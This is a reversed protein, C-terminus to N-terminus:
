LLSSAETGCRGDGAAQGVVAALGELDMVMVGGAARRADDDARRRLLLVCPTAVVADDGPTRAAAWAQAEASARQLARALGRGRSYNAVPSTVVALAQGPGVLYGRWSQHDGRAGEVRWGEPLKKLLRQLERLAGELQWGTVIRTAMIGMVAIGMTGFMRFLAVGFENALRFLSGVAFAVVLLPIVRAM